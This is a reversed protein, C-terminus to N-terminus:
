ISIICAVKNEFFTKYVFTSLKQIVTKNECTMLGIFKFM